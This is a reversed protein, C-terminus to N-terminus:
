PNFLETLDGDTWAELQEQFREPSMLRTKATEGEELMMFTTIGVIEVISKYSGTPDLTRSFRDLLGRASPHSIAFEKIEDASIPREVDGSFRGHAILLEGKTVLKTAVYALHFARYTAAKAVPPMKRDALCDTLMDTFKRLSPYQAELVPDVFAKESYQVGDFCEVLDDFYDALVPELDAVPLSWEPNQRGGREM